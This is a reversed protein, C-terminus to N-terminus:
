KLKFTDGSTYISLLADQFKILTNLRKVPLNKPCCLKIVQGEGTVTIKNRYVIVAASEDIGVCIYDPFTALASLLRNYRSRTIFHQDIIVSELLGLGESFEINNNWLKDFTESYNTDSLQNGTIM